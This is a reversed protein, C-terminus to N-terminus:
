GKLAKKFKAELEELSELTKEAAKELTDLPHGKEVKLFIKPEALYPHEKIQAAEKVNNSQWLSSLLLNTLTLTERTLQILVKKDQNQLLELEM